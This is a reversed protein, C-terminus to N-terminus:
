SGGGGVRPLPPVDPGRLRRAERLIQLRTFADGSWWDTQHEGRHLGWGGGEERWTWEEVVPLAGVNAATVVDGVRPGPTPEPTPPPAARARITEWVAGIGRCYDGGGGHAAVYVRQEESCVREAERLGDARGQARAAALARAIYGVDAGGYLCADWLDGAAEIDAPTPDTPM